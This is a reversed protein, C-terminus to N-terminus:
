KVKRTAVFEPAMIQRQILQLVTHTCVSINIGHAAESDVRNHTEREAGLGAGKVGLGDPNCPVGEGM